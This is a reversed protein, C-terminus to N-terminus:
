APLEDLFERLPIVEADGLKMRRPGLYVVIRRKLTPAHEALAEFGRLSRRDAERAHKVEIGWTERGDQVVFDVEAGPRTRFHFLTAQPQGGHRDIEVMVEPTIEERREWVWTDSGPYPIHCSACVISGQESWFVQHEQLGFRIRTTAMPTGDRM